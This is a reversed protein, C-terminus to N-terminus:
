LSVAGLVELAMVVAVRLQAVSDYCRRPLLFAKLRKWLAEVPNLHPCYPPLYRLFQASGPCATACVKALRSGQDAPNSHFGSTSHGHGVLLAGEDLCRAKMM